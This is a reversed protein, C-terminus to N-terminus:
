RTARHGIIYSTACTARAPVAHYVIVLDTATKGGGGQVGDLRAAARNASSTIYTCGRVAERRKWAQLSDEEGHWSSGQRWACPRSVRRGGDAPSGGRGRISRQSLGRPTPRAIGAGPIDLPEVVARSGPSSCSWLDLGRRGATRQDSTRTGTRRGHWPSSSCSLLLEIRGPSSCSWLHLGRLCM